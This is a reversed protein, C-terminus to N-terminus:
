CPDPPAHAPCGCFVHGQQANYLAYDLRRPLLQVPLVRAGSVLTVLYNLDCADRM